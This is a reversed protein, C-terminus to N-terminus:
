FEISTCFSFYWYSSLLDVYHIEILANSKMVEYIPLLNLGTVISFFMRFYQKRFEQNKCQNTIESALNTLQQNPKKCDLTVLRDGHTFPLLMRLYPGHLEGLNQLITFSSMWYFTLRIVLAISQNPIYSNRSSHM